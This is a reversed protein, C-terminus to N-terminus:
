RRWGTACRRSAARREPRLPAPRPQRGLRAAPARARPGPVAGRAPRRPVPRARARGRRRAAGRAPRGGGLPRAARPRRAGGRGGRVVGDGRAHPLAPDHRPVRDAAARRRRPPGARGPHAARCARPLPRPAGRPHRAHPRAADGAAHVDGPEGDAQGVAPARSAPPVRSRPRGRARTPALGLRDADYRARLSADSLWDHAVNIRKARDLAAEDSGAVDPHHRKLLARWAVEIAEPSADVGVELRAYLDDDPLLGGPM